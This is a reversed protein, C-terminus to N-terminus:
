FEILVWAAAYGAVQICVGVLPWRKRLTWALVIATVMGGIATCLPVIWAADPGWSECLFRHGTELGCATASRTVWAIFAPVPAAVALLFSGLTWLISWLPWIVPRYPAEPRPPRASPATTSPPGPPLSLAADATGNTGHEDHEDRPM